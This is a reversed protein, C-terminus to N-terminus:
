RLPLRAKRQVYISTKTMAALSFDCYQSEALKFGAVLIGLGREWDRVACWGQLELLCAFALERTGFTASCCVHRLRYMM